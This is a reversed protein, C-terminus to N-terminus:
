KSFNYAAHAEEGIIRSLEQQSFKQVDDSEGIIRSLEQQSFTQLDDSKVALSQKISQCINELDIEISKFAATKLTPLVDVGTFLSLLTELDTESFDSSIFVVEDLNAISWWTQDSHSM